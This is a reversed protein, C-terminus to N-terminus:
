VHSMSSQKIETIGWADLLQQHNNEITHYQEVWRKGDRGKREAVKHFTQELVKELNHVDASIVPCGPYLFKQLEEDIYCIVEKGAALAEVTQLGYWGIVLQDVVIDCSKYLSFLEYRSTSYKSGTNENKSYVPRIIEVKDPYKAKLNQLAQDIHRSGKLEANSPSHLIRVKGDQTDPAGSTELERNFKQLDLLVPYYVAEPILRKLDPTSVLITNAFKRADSILKQQWNESVPQNNIPEGDKLYENKKLLFASSRIDSGVFHMVVRKGLLRYIM